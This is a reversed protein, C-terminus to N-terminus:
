PEAETSRYGLGHVTEIPDVDYPRLKARIRRIHTDITRETVHHDGAYARDILQSRTLLRGPRDILARLVEFETATLELKDGRVRIEHRETDIEIPGHVLTPGRAEDGSRANTRRLVARV